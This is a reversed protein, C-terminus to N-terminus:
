YEFRLCNRHKDTSNLIVEYQNKLHPLEEIKEQIEENQNTLNVLERAM